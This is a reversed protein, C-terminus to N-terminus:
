LTSLHVYLGFWFKFVRPVSSSLFSSTYLNFLVFVPIYVVNSLCVCLVGCPLGTRPLIRPGHAYALEFANTGCYASLATVNLETANIM